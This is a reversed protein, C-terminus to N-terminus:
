GSWVVGEAGLEVEITGDRDTRLVVAGAQELAAVVDPSPHGFDNPGVSIVAVRPSTSALWGLDSTGGGQHPVKLVDTTVLGLERQADVEIDGAMLVSAGGARVEIVLSMDNAGAFRRSPALVELTFAGIVLRAGPDPSSIAVGDARLAEVAHDLLPGEGLQDSHWAVGVAREGAVARLGAVHDAHRHSIVLVDIRDVGYADLHAELRVPDPGGDVLVTEGDPGRFLTADGQGVDLFAVTPEHPPSAPAVAAALAGAVVVLGLPRLGPLAITIVVLGGAILLWAADLQPLDAATHAVVLVLEAPVVAAELAGPVPMVVGIGGLATALAVLPAAVLNALPAALPVSGFWLILLPAVAAQASITAGVVAWVPRPSRDVWLPAGSIIGATAAVSLAFGASGALHPATLLSIVVAGGLATWPTISRGALRGVLVLGAMLSARVVSPEWRTVVVFVALGVLGFVARRRPGMAVPAGVVWWAALFLAVNSGSVAVYHSLGARRLAEGDREPLRRTDGILFGLLLAGAPQEAMQDLEALVRRRLGNGVAFVPNPSSGVRDVSAARLVGAVPRGRYRDFSDQFTGVVILPEGAVIGALDGRVVVPPGAWPSAGVASPRLVADEVGFGGVRPDTALVGRVESRGEPLPASEVAAAEGAEVTALGIGVVAAGAAIAVHRRWRPHLMALAGVLAVWGFGVGCWM